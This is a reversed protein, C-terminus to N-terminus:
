VMARCLPPVVSNPAYSLLNRASRRTLATLACTERGALPCSPAVTVLVPRVVADPTTTRNVVELPYTVVLAGTVTAGPCDTVTLTAQGVFPTCPVWVTVAYASGPLRTRSLSSDLLEALTETRTGPHPPVARRHGRCQGGGYQGAAAPHLAPGTRGTHRACGQAAGRRG